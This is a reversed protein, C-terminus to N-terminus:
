EYVIDYIRSVTKTTYSEYRVCVRGTYARKSYELCNVGVSYSCSVKVQSSSFTNVVCMLNKKGGLNADEKYKEIYYEDPKGQKNSTSCGTILLVGFLIILVYKKM